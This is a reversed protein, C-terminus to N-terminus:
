REQKINKLNEIIKLLGITNEFGLIRCINKFLIRKKNNINQKLRADLRVVENYDEEMYKLNNKIEDFLTQGPNSNVLIMSIGNTEDRETFIDPSIGCFDKLTIDGIRKECSFDCTYCNDMCSIGKVYAMCYSDENRLLYRKKNKYFITLGYQNNHERFLINNFSKIRKKIIHKEFLEQACTGNCVLDIYIINKRNELYKKLAFVQCPLGIFVIKQSDFKKITEYIYSMDAYLYKSGLFSTINEATVYDYVLRQEKWRVGICVIGKEVCYEYVTAAIGGSASYDNTRRKKKCACYARKVSNLKEKNVNECTCVRFCRGCDICKTKDIKKYYKLDKRVISICNNPCVYECLRCGYCNKTEVDM